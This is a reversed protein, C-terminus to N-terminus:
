NPKGTIKQLLLEVTRKVEDPMNVPMPPVGCAEDNDSIESNAEKRPCVPTYTNEDPDLTFEITHLEPQVERLNAFFEARQEKFSAIYDDGEQLFKKVEADAQKVRNIADIKAQAKTEEIKVTLSILKRALNEETELLRPLGVKMLQQAEQNLPKPTKDM